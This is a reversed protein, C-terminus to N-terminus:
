FFLWKKVAEMYRRYEDPFKKLLFEEELKIVFNNLWFSLGVASVLYMVNEFVLFMSLHFMVFSLYMPNRTYAFIGTKILRNTDSTPVPDEDYVKFINFGLFFICVSSIFGIIGLLKIVYVLPYKPLFFEGILYSVILLGVAIRLPNGKVNPGENM